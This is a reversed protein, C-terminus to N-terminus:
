RRSLASTVGRWANSSKIFRSILGSTSLQYNITTRSVVLGGPVAVALPPAGRLRAAEGGVM